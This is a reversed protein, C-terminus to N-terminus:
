WISLSLNQERHGLPNPLDQGECDQLGRRDCTGVKSQGIEVWGVMLRLQFSPFTRYVSEIGFCVTHM